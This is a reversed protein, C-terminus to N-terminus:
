LEMRTVCVATTGVMNMRASAANPMLEALERVSFAVDVAAICPAVLWCYLIAITTSVVGEIPSRSLSGWM